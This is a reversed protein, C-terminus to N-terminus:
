YEQPVSDVKIDYCLSIQNNCQTPVKLGRGRWDVVVHSATSQPWRRVLSESKDEMNVM